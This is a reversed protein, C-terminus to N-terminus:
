ARLVDIKSEPRRSAWWVPIIAALLIVGILIMNTTFAAGGLTVQYRILGTANTNQQAAQGLNQAFGVLGGLVLAFVVTVMVEALLTKFLQWKSFGRVSLLVIEADKERLTLIVVLAVGAMALVIAFSIALYQIKTSGSRLPSSQYDAIESTVSYTSYADDIDALFQEQLVTGNVSPATDVLINATATHILLSENLFSESVISIYDGGTTFTFGAIAVEIITQYGILGIITLAYTGTGFPGDVYIEDGVELNLTKAVDRSIIISDEDLNDLMETFSSTFWQSEWYGIDIWEDPRIGRTDISNSGARLDLHYEPTVGVVDEYTQVEDLLESMNSGAELQIRVDAGVDYRATRETYDFQSYLSGTAFVGYSVILAIIFVLSATRAPNRKVNRTALNGFAGFFRRGANVVAEQFRLSGKMFVRTAGYLFLLPGIYNLVSDIMAWVAILLTIVFNGITISSFLSNIDIGLM